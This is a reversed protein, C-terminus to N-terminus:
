SDVAIFIPSTLLRHPATSRVDLRYVAPRDTASERYVAEFPTQGAWAEALAGNRVLSLRVPLASVGGAGLAIRIELSTGPRVRLTEGPRATGSPTVISFDGLVLGAEPTRQLAYLRGRRLADLVGAESRQEVLFVTQVSGVRKGTGLGHFGSEGVAWAPRSREGAAYENLLRDWVGGPEVARIPQEYLGGFATYRATRLLDDPYPETRWTVKLPGVAREGLDSAEPFSWVASGGLREVHDILAQYPAPGHDRWPSYRDVTFPWGRVLAILGVAILLTGPLWARRRIVVVTGAIRLRRPWTRFLLALGPILLAVPVADAASQWGYRQPHPNGITPLAALVEPDTIGFVLLNKQIDHLTLAWPAGTWYFHPIVEVGPVFVVRPHRRRAEAVRALYAELGGTLVGREEYSVRTLARFPPLGYQIKLLYNESILLAETGQREAMKALDDLSFDGTTLDSHLHLAAPLRELASAPLAPATLGLILVVLIM